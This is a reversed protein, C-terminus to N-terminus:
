AKQRIGGVRKTLEEATAKLTQPVLGDWAASLTAALGFTTLALIVHGERDFIPASFSIIGTYREGTTRAVGYRRIDVLHRHFVRKRRAVEAKSLHETRLQQVLEADILPELRESPLYAAFARGTASNWLPLDGKWNPRISVPKPADEVNLIIPGSNGWASVFATENIDRVLRPLAASALARALEIGTQPHSLQFGYPGLGYLGRGDQQLLGTRILSVCYRHVKGPPMSSLRSLENLTAPRGLRQLSQFLRIGVELSQIGQQQPM